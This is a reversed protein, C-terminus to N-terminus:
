GRQLSAAEEVSAQMIALLRNSRKALDLWRRWLFSSRPYDVVWAEYREQWWGVGVQLARLTESIRDQMGAGRMLNALMVRREGIGAPIGVESGINHIDQRSMFVGSRAPSLLYEVLSRLDMEHHDEDETRAEHDTITEIGEADLLLRERTLRAAMRYIELHANREIALCCVPGWRLLHDALFDEATSAEGRKLLWALFMVEAGLADPAGLLWERAPVFEARAYCEEVRWTSEGNLEPALELFVSSYPYVNSTFLRAFEVRAAELDVPLLRDFGPDKRLKDLAEQDLEYLFFRALRKYEEHNM